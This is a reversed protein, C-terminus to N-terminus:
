RRRRFVVRAHCDRLHPVERHFAVHCEPYLLLLSWGLSGDCVRVVCASKSAYESKVRGFPAPSRSRDAPSCSIHGPQESNM